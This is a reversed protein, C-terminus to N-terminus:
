KQRVLRFESISEARQKGILFSCVTPQSSCATSQPYSCFCVWSIYAVSFGFLIGIALLGVSNIPHRSALILAARLCTRVGIEPQQVLYPFIYFSLTAM